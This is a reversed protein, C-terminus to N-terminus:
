SFRFKSTLFLVKNIYILKNLTFVFFHLFYHFINSYKWYQNILISNRGQYRPGATIVWGTTLIGFLGNQFMTNQFTSPQSDLSYTPTMWPSSLAM